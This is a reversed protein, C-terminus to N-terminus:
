AGIFRLVEFILMAPWVIGKLVGLVGMWFGTTTSIYYAAAGIAALFYAGGGCGGHMNCSIGKNKNKGIM